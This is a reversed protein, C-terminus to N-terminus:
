SAPWNADALTLTEDDILRSEEIRIAEIINAASELMDLEAIDAASAKGKSEKRVRKVARMLVHLLNESNSGLVAIVRSQAADRIESKRSAEVQEESPPPEVYPGTDTWGKAVLRDIIAHDSERRDKQGELTLINM